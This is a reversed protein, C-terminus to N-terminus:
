RPYVAAFRAVPRAEGSLVLTDGTVKWSRTAGLGDLFAREQRSLDQDLCARLTSAM